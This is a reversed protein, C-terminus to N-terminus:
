AAAGQAQQRNELWSDLQSLRFGRARGGLCIPRPFKADHRPSRANLWDYLTSPAIGLYSAAASPRLVPDGIGGARAQQNEPM